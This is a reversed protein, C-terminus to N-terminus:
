FITGQVGHFVIFTEGFLCIIEMLSTTCFKNYAHALCAITKVEGGGKLQEWGGGGKPPIEIYSTTTHQQHLNFVWKLTVMKVYNAMSKM